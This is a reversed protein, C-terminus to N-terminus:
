KEIKGSEKKIKKRGRLQEMPLDYKEAVEDFVIRPGVIDFTYTKEQHKIVVQDCSFCIQFEITEEGLVGILVHRPNFCKVREKADRGAEYQKALEAILIDLDEKNIEADGLKQWNKYFETADDESSIQLTLYEVKESKKLVDILRNFESTDKTDCSIFIFLLLFHMGLIKVM